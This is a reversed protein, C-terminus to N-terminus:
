LDNIVSQISILNGEADLLEFTGIDLAKAWTKLEDTNPFLYNVGTYSSFDYCALAGYINFYLSQVQIKLLKQNNKLQSNNFDFCCLHNAKWPVIYSKIVGSYVNKSDALTIRMDDRDNFTQLAITGIYSKGIGKSLLEGNQEIFKICRCRCNECTLIYSM